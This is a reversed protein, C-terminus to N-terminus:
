ADVLRGDRLYGHYRPTLISPSATVNPIAGERTWRGGTNSPGDVCWWEHPGGPLKVMLSVGDPGVMNRSSDHYEIADRMAGPPADRLSFREGAGDVREYLRDSFLQRSEHATFPRGCACAAPWRPDDAALVDAGDYILLSQDIPVEVQDFPVQADHYGM